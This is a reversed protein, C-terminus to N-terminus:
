SAKATAEDTNGEQVIAPSWDFNTFEKGAQTESTWCKLPMVIGALPNHKEDVVFEYFEETMEKEVVAADTPDINNAYALFKAADDPSSDWNSSLYWSYKGGVAIEENDTELVIFEVIFNDIKKRDQGTKVAAIEVKYNGEKIYRGKGSGTPSQTGTFFGM